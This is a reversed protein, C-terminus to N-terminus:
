LNGLEFDITFGIEVAPSYKMMNAGVYAKFCRDESPLSYMIRPSFVPVLKKKWILDQHVDNRDIVQIHYRCVGALAAVTWSDTLKLGYGGKLMLLFPSKTDDRNSGLVNPNAYGSFEIIYGRYYGVSIGVINGKTSYGGIGNVYICSTQSKGSVSLILSIMLIWINKM